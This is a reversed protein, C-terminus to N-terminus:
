KMEILMLRIDGEAAEFKRAAGGEFYAGEGSPLELIQPAKGAESVRIKGGDVAAIFTDRSHFTQREAIAPSLRVDWQRFRDTDNVLRANAGAYGESLGTNNAYTPSASEKLDVVILNRGPTTLGREMHTLGKPLVWMRGRETASTRALGSPDTVTIASNTLEVGVFQYLHKHWHLGVGEVFNVNWMAGRANELIKRAGQRPWAHPLEITNGPVPPPPQAFADAYLGLCLGVFVGAVVVKM